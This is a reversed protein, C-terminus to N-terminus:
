NRNFKVFHTKQILIPDLIPFLFPGWSFISTAVGVIAGVKNRLNLTNIIVALFTTTSFNLHLNRTQRFYFHVFVFGITYVQTDAKPKWAATLTNGPIEFTVLFTHKHSYYPILHLSLEVCNEPCRPLHLIHSTFLSIWYYVGALYLSRM